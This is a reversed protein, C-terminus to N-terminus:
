LGAEVTFTVVSSRFEGTPLVIRAQARWAGASALDGAITTYVIRGDAGTTVFAATRASSAGSRPALIIQLVSAGVLSMAVGREDSVTLEIRTGVDGVFVTGIM